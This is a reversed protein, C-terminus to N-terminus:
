VGKVSSFNKAASGFGHRVSGGGLGFRFKLKGYRVKGFDAINRRVSGLGLRQLRSRSKSFEQRVSGLDQNAVERTHTSM